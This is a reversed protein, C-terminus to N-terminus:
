LRTLLQKAVKGATPEGVLQKALELAFQMATAPGQSTVVTPTGTSVVVREDSRNVLKGVFADAPYCTAERRELIGLPALVVAPAACIAGILRKQKRLLGELEKSEYLNKAGPMGGPCIIADFEKEQVDSILADAMLVVNRSCVIQRSGSVSAVTVNIECRRLIDIVSVAELEESGEGVAVCVHVM